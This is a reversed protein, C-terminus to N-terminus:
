RVRRRGNPRRAAPRPRGRLSSRLASGLRLREEQASREGFRRRRAVPRCQQEVEPHGLCAGPKGAPALVQLLGDVGRRVGRCGGLCREHQRVGEAAGLAVRLRHLDEIAGRRRKTCWARLEPKLELGGGHHGLEVVGCGHRGYGRAPHCQALPGRVIRRCRGLEECCRREDGDQRVLRGLAGGLERAARKLGSVACRAAGKAPLPDRGCPPKRGRRERQKPALPVSLQSRQEIGRDRLRPRGAVAGPESHAQGDAAPERESAAIQAGGLCVGPRRKGRGLEGRWRHARTSFPATSTCASTSCPSSSAASCASAGSSESVSLPDSM